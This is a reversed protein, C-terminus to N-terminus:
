KEEIKLVPDARMTLSEVAEAVDGGRKRLNNLQTGNLKAPVPKTTEPTFVKWWDEPSVMEKLHHARSLDYSAKGAPLTVKLTPHDLVTAGQSQMWGSLVLKMRKAADYLGKAESAYENVRTAAGQPDLMEGTHPDIIGTM